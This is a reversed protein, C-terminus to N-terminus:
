CDKTYADYDFNDVRFMSNAGASIPMPVENCALVNWGAGDLTGTGETFSLDTCKTQGKYNYYIESAAMM